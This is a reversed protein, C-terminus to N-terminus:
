LVFAVGVLAVIAAAAAPLTATRAASNPAGTGSSSPASGSASTSGSSGSASSPATSTPKVSGTGSGSAGGTASATGNASGTGGAGGTASESSSATSSTEAGIAFSGSTAYVQNIDSVNVFQLTYGDEAPVAPITLTLTNITPDVSNAIAFANNFSPHVLEISFTPDSSTSSWTITTQGGSTVSSPANVSLSLAASVGLALTLCVKTFM